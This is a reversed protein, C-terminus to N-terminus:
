GLFLERALELLRPVHIEAILYLGILMLNLINHEIRITLKTTGALTARREHWDLLSPIEGFSSSNVTSAFGWSWHINISGQMRVGIDVRDM